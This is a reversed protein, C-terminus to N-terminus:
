LIQLAWTLKVTFAGVAAPVVFQLTLLGTTQSYVGADFLQGIIVNTGNISLTACFTAPLKEGINDLVTATYTVGTGEYGSVKDLDENTVIVTRTEGTEFPTGTSQDGLYKVDLVM